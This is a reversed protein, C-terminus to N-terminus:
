ASTPIKVNIDSLISESKWMFCGDVIEVAFESKDVQSIRKSVRTDQNTVPNVM